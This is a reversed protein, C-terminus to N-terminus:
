PITIQKDIWETVLHLVEKREIDNHLEHFGNEFSKYTVYAKNNSWFEESALHSTISDKEGHLLLMPIDLASAHAIAWEGQKIIQLSYRTSVRDHILPDNKYAEVEKPDKSISAVAIENPLTLSPYIKDIMRGLTMKWAPPDFALRLLPSTVIVGKIPPKRRLMFNIVVNGGMSHGYLFVPKLPFLSSAMHVVKHLSDLLYEYGPHNGRKGESHGHGFQDYSLVAISAKLLAPVVSSEYRAAYEGLGHVLVVVALPDDTTYSQGKLTYGAIEFEFPHKTM